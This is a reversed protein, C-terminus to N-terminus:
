ISESGKKEKVGTLLKNKMDERTEKHASRTQILFKRQSSWQPSLKRKGTQQASLSRGSLAASHKGKKKKKEKMKNIVWGTGGM